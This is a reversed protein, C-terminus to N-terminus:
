QEDEEQDIVSPGHMGEPIGETIVPTGGDIALKEKSM